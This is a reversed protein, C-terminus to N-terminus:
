EFEESKPWPRQKYYMLSFKHYQMDYLSQLDDKLKAGVAAELSEM